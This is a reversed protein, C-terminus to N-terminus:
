LGYVSVVCVSSSYSILCRRVGHLHTTPTYPNHDKWHPWNDHFTDLSVNWSVLWVPRIMVRIRECCLCQKLLKYPV